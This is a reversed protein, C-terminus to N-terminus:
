VNIQSSYHKKDGELIWVFVVKVRMNLFKDGLGFTKFGLCVRGIDKVM